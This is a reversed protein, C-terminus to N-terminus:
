HDRRRLVFVIPLLAALAAYPALEVRKPRGVTVSTGRGLLGHAVRAVRAADAEEFVPQGSTLAALRRLAALSTPDPRYREPRGATFVREDRHWFRVVLL